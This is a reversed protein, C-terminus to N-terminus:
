LSELQPATHILARLQPPARQPSDTNRDICGSSKATTMIWYVKVPSINAPPTFARVKQVEAEFIMFVFNDLAGAAVVLLALSWILQDVHESSILFDTFWGAILPFARGGSIAM